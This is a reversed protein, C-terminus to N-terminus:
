GICRSKPKPHDTVAVTSEGLTGGRVQTARNTEPSYQVGGGLDGGVKTSNKRLTEINYTHPFISSMYVYM